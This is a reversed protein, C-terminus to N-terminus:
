APKERDNQRILYDNSKIGKQTKQPYEWRYCIDLVHSMKIRSTPYNGSLKEPTTGHL